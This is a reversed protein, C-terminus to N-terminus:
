PGSEFPENVVMWWQHTLKPVTKWEFLHDNGLYHPMLQLRISRYQPLFWWSIKPVMLPMWCDIWTAWKPYYSKESTPTPMGMM